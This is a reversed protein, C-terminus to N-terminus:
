FLARSSGHASINIVWTSSNAGHRVLCQGGGCNRSSYHAVPVLEKPRTNEFSIKERRNRADFHIRFHLLDINREEKRKKRTSVMKNLFFHIINNLSKNIIQGFMQHMASIRTRQCLHIPQFTKTYKHAIWTPQVSIFSRGVLSPTFYLSVLQLVNRGSLRTSRLAIDSYRTRVNDQTHATHISIRSRVTIVLVDCLVDWLADTSSSSGGWIYRNVVFM